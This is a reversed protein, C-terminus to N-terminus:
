DVRGFSVVRLALEGLEDSADLDVEARIQWDHNGAPDDIIQTVQWRRTRDDG